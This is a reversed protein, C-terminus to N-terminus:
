DASAHGAEDEGLDCTWYMYYVLLKTLRKHRRLDPDRQFLLTQLYVLAHDFTDWEDRHVAIQENFEVAAEMYWELIEENAPNSLFARINEFYSLYDRRILKAFRDSLGNIKNKTDFPVRHIVSPATLAESFVAPHKDLALIVEALDDPSIRMPTNVESISAIRIAKPYQKLCLEIREVCFLEASGVGTERLLRQRISAETDGSLRRNSFLLYHDVEGSKVLNKLRNAEESLVSSAAKSSFIPDSYKAFPHETHKAQVVFNGSHPETSNPLNAATGQFRADRGGDPGTSFPQVGSGLLQTCIAVVLAEFQQNYLDHYDFRM